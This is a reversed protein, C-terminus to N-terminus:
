LADDFWFLGLAGPGGHTGVVPGLTTLVDLAADPRIRQIRAALDEADAPRDAHALAVHLNQSEVTGDAFLRELEALAKARGRMRKLPEVEGDQLALIPKVNLLQGAM